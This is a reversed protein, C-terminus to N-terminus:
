KLLFPPRLNQSLRLRQTGVKQKRVAMARLLSRPHVPEDSGQNGSIGVMGVKAFDYRNELGM